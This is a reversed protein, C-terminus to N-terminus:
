AKVEVDIEDAHTFKFLEATGQLTMPTRFQNEPLEGFNWFLHHPCLHEGEEKSTCKEGEFLEPKQKYELGTPEFAMDLKAGLTNVPTIKAIISGAYIEEGGFKQDKCKLVETGPPKLLLGVETKAKNIYGLTGHLAKSVVPNPLACIGGGGGGTLTIVVNSVEKSGTIEGTLEGKTFQWSGTGQGDFTVDSKFAGSFKVPYATKGELSFEPLAASASAAGVVGIACLAVFALLASRSISRM